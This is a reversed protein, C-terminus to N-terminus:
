SVEERKVQKFEAGCAPCKFGPTEPEPEKKRTMIERALKTKGKEDIPEREQFAM